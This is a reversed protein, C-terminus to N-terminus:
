HDLYQALKARARQWSDSTAAANYQRGPFIFDHDTDPYTVLEFPAGQASAAAAIARATDVLCCNRYHDLEGAFMLVPVKIGRVFNPLDNIGATAPYWAVVVAVSNPWRSAYALAEGGGLSFGVVAVKGPLGHTSKQAAQVATWLAKGHSGEMDNGDLLVVDYGLEAIQRAPPEYHAAGLQGSVVVVVPGKGQPPPFESQAHVPTTTAAFVISVVVVAKRALQIM